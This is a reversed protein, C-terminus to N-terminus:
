KLLVRIGRYSGILGMFIGIAMLWVMGYINFLIKFSFLDAFYVNGSRAAILLVITAIIAGIIGDLIGEIIFPTKIFM